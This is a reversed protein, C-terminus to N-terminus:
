SRERRRRVGYRSLVADGPEAEPEKVDTFTKPVNSPPGSGTSRTRLGFIRASSDFDASAANKGIYRSEVVNRPEAEPEKVDLFTKPVDSSRGVDDRVNNQTARVRNVENDVFIGFFDGVLRARGSFLEGRDSITEGSIKVM